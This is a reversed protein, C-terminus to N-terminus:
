VAAIPPFASTVRVDDFQRSQGAAPMLHKRDPRKAQIATGQELDGQDLSLYSGTGTAAVVVM